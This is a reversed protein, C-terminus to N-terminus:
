ARLVRTSHVGFRVACPLGSFTLLTEMEQAPINCPTSNRFSARMSTRYQPAYLYVVVKCSRGTHGDADIHSAQGLGNSQPLGGRCVYDVAVVAGVCRGICLGYEGNRYQITAGISLMMAAVMDVM